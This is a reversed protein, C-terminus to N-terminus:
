HAHGGPERILVEGVLVRGLRRARVFEDLARCFNGEIWGHEGGAPTRPVILECPGLDAM